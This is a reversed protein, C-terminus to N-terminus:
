DCRDHLYNQNENKREWCEESEKILGKPGKEAMKEVSCSTFAVGVFAAKNKNEYAPLTELYRHRWMDIEVSMKECSDHMDVIDRLIEIYDERDM